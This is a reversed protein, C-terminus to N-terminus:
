GSCEKMADLMEEVNNVATRVSAVSSQHTAYRDHLDIHPNAASYTCISALYTRQEKLKQACEQLREEEMRMQRMLQCINGQEIESGSQITPVQNGYAQSPRSATTQAM